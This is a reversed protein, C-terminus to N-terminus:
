SAGLSAFFNVPQNCTSLNSVLCITVYTFENLKNAFEIEIDEICVIMNILRCFCRCFLKINDLGSPFTFRGFSHTREM